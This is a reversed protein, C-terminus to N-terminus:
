LEALLAPSAVCLEHRRDVPVINDKGILGLRDFEKRIENWVERKSVGDFVAAERVNDRNIRWGHKHLTQALRDLDAADFTWIGLLIKNGSERRVLRVPRGPVAAPFFSRETYVTEDRVAYFGVISVICGWAGGVALSLGVLWVIPTWLPFYWPGVFPSYWRGFSAVLVVLGPIMVFMWGIVRKSTSAMARELDLAPREHVVKVLTSKGNGEDM